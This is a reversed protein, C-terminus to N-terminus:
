EHSVEDKTSLAETAPEEQYVLKMEYSQDNISTELKLKPRVEKYNLENFFTNFRELSGGIRIQLEAMGSSIKYTKLEGALGLAMGSNEIHKKLLFLDTVSRADLVLLSVELINSDHSHIKQAMKGFYTLPFKYLNTAVNSSLEHLGGLETSFNMSPIDAFYVLKQTKLNVLNLHGTIRYVLKKFILNKSEKRITFSAKLVMGGEFEPNIVSGPVGSQKYNDDLRMNLSGDTIVVNEVMGELKNKVWVAWYDNVVKKFESVVEVGIDPWALNVLRIDSRVFLTKYLHSSELRTFQRYLRNLQKRNVKGLIDIHYVHTFKSSHSMRKVVFSSLVKRISGFRSQLLLRKYRLAKLYKPSLPAELVKTQEAGPLTVTDVSNTVPVVSPVIKFKVKLAEEIPAFREQFSMHYRDWFLKSDLKMSALEQDIIEKTAVYLLQQKIFTLKEGEHSAYRGKGRLFNNKGQAGLAVFLLAFLIIKIKM